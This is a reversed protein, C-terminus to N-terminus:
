ASLDLLAGKKKITATAIGATYKKLAILPIQLM